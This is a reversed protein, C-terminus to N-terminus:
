MAARDLERAVFQSATRAAQTYRKIAAAGYNAWELVELTARTCILDCGALVEFVRSKSLPRKATDGGTKASGAGTLVDDLLPYTEVLDRLTPHDGIFARVRRNDHEIVPRGRGRRAEEVAGASESTASM